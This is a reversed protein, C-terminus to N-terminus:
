RCDYVYMYFDNFKHQDSVTFNKESAASELSAKLTSCGGAARQAPASLLLFNFMITCLSFFHIRTGTHSKVSRAVQAPSITLRM